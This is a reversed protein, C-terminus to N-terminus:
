GQGGDGAFQARYLARYAGDRHILEDHGGQEVISGHEMVLITDADRITSLRHAIVFSTRSERLAAMAHQVLVETRTDVSSTAEDLILVAPDALFARAITILQREGASVSGGDQDVMTDYGEPLSRVFRDVYTARAAALVEEDTAELRGYRINERITGRFLVADQLVMGTARRLRDRTMERIDQGDLTIEGADIEYFRLILNVLTTKGAGTPGVIAVTQGPEAVLSLDRILPRQATYSFDVHSFEIRGRARQGERAADAAVAAPSDPSQEPEDLLDYVREASAVGSQLMNAMGAIQGLPQTFERSYQIFATAGGLSLQGSAVKLGGLVAIGVYGLYSVFQMIPMMTGSLFQARFSAQFVADNRERFARGMDQGRGYVRILEHGTFAEEIHGNLEGTAKWQAAFLKQSRRGVFAVVVGSIPVAILAVLALQWSLVFMMVAVGLVTLIAQVLEALAQQLAQQINDLDNTTRSLLDGRQHTDAYSLPLAHLKAEVRRRVDRVVRMVLDNLIRGQLWLFVGALVYMGLVLLLTAGLAPFDIGQGPTFDVATLMDAMQDRGQERLGAIVQEADAGAPSQLGVVGAYILDTAHGLVRPAFVTLLVSSVLLATMLSLRGPWRTLERLLRGATPWFARATRPAPPMESM